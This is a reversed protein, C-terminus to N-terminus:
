FKRLGALHDLSMWDVVQTKFLDQIEEAIQEVSSVPKRSTNWCSVFGEQEEQTLDEWPLLKVLQRNIEVLEELTNFCAPLKYKQYQLFDALMDIDLTNANTILKKFSVAGFRFLGKINDGADGVFVKYPYIAGCDLGIKGASKRNFETFTHPNIQRVNEHVLMQAWDQDASLLVVQHTDKLKDAIINACDDAEVGNIAVVRGFHPLIKLLTRYDKNFTEYARKEAETYKDRLTDRNAKYAPYLEKRFRSSSLDAVFVINTTDLDFKSILNSLATLVGTIHRKGHFQSFAMLRTDVVVVKNM